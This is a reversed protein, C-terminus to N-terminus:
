KEDRAEKLRLMQKRLPFCIILLFIANVILTPLLRDVFFMAAPMDTRKLLMLFGYVYYELATITLLILTFVIILNVQLVRMANYAFFTLIPYAFLYVGILETYVIDFLFGFVLAYYIAHTPNYYVAIFLLVIILFHPVVISDTGFPRYPFVSVFINESIFTLFLFLPLIIRKM